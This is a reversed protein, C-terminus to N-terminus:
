CKVIQASNVSQKKAERKNKMYLRMYEKRANAKDLAMQADTKVIENTNVNNVAPAVPAAETEDFLGQIDIRDETMERLKRECIHVYEKEMDEHKGLLETLKERLGKNDSELEGVRATLRTIEQTFARIVEEM